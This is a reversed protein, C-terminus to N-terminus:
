SDKFTERLARECGDMYDEPVDFFNLMFKIYNKKNSFLEELYSQLAKFM